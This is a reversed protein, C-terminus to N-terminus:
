SVFQAHIPREITTNQRGGTLTTAGSHHHPAHLSSADCEGALLHPRTLARSRNSDAASRRSRQRTARHGPRGDLTYRSDRKTPPDPTAVRGDLDARWPPGDRNIHEERMEGTGARAPAAASFVFRAEPWRVRSTSKWSSASLACRAPGSRRTDPCRQHGAPQDAGSRMGSGEGVFECGQKRLHKELQRRKM